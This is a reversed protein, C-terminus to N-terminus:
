KVLEFEYAFTWPNYGPKNWIRKRSVKDLMEGFAEKASDFRNLRCDEQGAYRYGIWTEKHEKLDIIAKIVGEKLCDEESISHLLEVKVGTVKIQHPMLDARVYMKNNWGLTQQCLEILRDRIGFDKNWSKNIRKYSQAIAVIEGVKYPAHAILYEKLQDQQISVCALSITGRLSNEYREMLKDSVLRRTMTKRMQLVAIELNDEFMIKKM